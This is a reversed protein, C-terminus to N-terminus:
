SVLNALREDIGVAVVRWSWGATSSVWPSRSSLAPIGPLDDDLRLFTGAFPSVTVALLPVGDESVLFADRALRGREFGDSTDRTARLTIGQTAGVGM